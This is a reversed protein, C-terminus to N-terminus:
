DRKRTVEDNLEIPIVASGQKWQKRRSFATGHSHQTRRAELYPYFNQQVCYYRGAFVESMQLFSFSVITGIINDYDDTYGNEGPLNDVRRVVM